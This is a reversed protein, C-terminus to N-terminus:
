PWRSLQGAGRWQSKGNSPRPVRSFEGSSPTTRRTSSHRPRRWRDIDFAYQPLDMPTSRATIAAARPLPGQRFVPEAKSAPCLARSRPRASIAPQEGHSASDAPEESFVHVLGNEAHGSPLPWALLMTISFRKLRTRTSRRKQSFLPQQGRSRIEESRLRSSSYSRRRVQYQSM